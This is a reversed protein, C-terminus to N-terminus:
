PTMARKPCWSHCKQGHFGKGPKLGFGLKRASDRIDILVYITAWQINDPDYSLSLESGSMKVADCLLLNLM